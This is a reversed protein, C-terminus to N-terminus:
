VRKRKAGVTERAGTSTVFTALGRRLPGASLIHCPGRAVKIGAPVPYLICDDAFPRITSSSAENPLDNIYILFLIPGLVTGQPVGSSLIPPPNRGKLFLERRDGKCFFKFGPM